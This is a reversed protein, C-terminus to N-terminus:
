KYSVIVTVKGHTYFRTHRNHDAELMYIRNAKQGSVVLLLTIRGNEAKETYDGTDKESRFANVLSPLSHQSPVLVKVVKVVKHTAPDRKVVSTFHSQGLNSINDVLDDIRNQAAVHLTALTLFVAALLAKMVTHLDKM